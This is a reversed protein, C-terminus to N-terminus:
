SRIGKQRAVGALARVAAAPDDAKSLSSGVLVADAGTAAAREVDNVERVGSEAVAIVSAPIRPIMRAVTDTDVQLTELDRNNVGIVRAGADLARTLEEATRIEVLAELQLAHAAAVLAVLEPQDLARVILLAASAGLARAETLQLPDVIFDKRMVPVDVREHVELLDEPSGGFQEPETLVSIAAAGGAAYAAARDGSHLGVNIEGHSPSRRKVEAIVAVTPRRLAAAFGRPIPTDSAQHELTSRHAALVHVRIKARDVLEGLTGSPPTWRFAAQTETGRRSLEHESLTRTVPLFESVLWVSSVM